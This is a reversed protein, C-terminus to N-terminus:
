IKGGEARGQRRVMAVRRVIFLARDLTHLSKYLLVPLWLKSVITLALTLMQWLLDFM